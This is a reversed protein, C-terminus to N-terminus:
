AKLRHTQCVKCQEPRNSFTAGGERTLVFIDGGDWLLLADDPDAPGSKGAQQVWEDWQALSIVSPISENNEFSFWDRKAIGVCVAVTNVAPADIFLDDSVMDSDKILSNSLCGDSLGDDHVLAKLMIPGVFTQVELAELPPMRPSVEALCISVFKYGVGGGNWQHRYGPDLHELATRAVDEDCTGRDIGLAACTEQLRRLHLRAEDANIYAVVNWEQYMDYSQNNHGVIIYASM